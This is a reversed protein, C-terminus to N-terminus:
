IVFLIFIKCRVLKAGTSEQKASTSILQLNKYSLKLFETKKEMNETQLYSM